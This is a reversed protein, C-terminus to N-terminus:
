FYICFRRNNHALMEIDIEYLASMPAPQIVEATAAAHVVRGNKMAVVRDAYCSAYNIDHLVVVIAKHFVDAARRLNHMLNRAHHMDLNNLPEDLLIYDTDQAFVMAVLARQRQGGSIEDIFKHQLELLDFYALTKEITLLDDTKPRGHHYPFRAFILLERITLRSLLQTHQQLIAVRQALARGPSHRVSLEDFHIDGQQLETIRAMLSLLTSKGAGNPGILATIGDKPLTLNIDHLIAKPGFAFNVGKIEIM